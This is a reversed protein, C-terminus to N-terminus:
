NIYLERTMIGVQSDESNGLFHCYYINHFFHRYCLFYPYAKKIYFSNKCSLLFFVLLKVSFFSLLYILSIVCVYLFESIFMFICNTDSMIFPLFM